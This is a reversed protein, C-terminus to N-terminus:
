PFVIVGANETNWTQKGTARWRCIPTDEGRCVAANFGLAAGAPLRGGLATWPILWECSWAQPASGAAFKVGQAALHRRLESIGSDPRSELRGDRYGRLLLAHADDRPKIALEGYVNDGAAKPLPIEMAVLLADPTALLRLKAPFPDKSGDPRYAILTQGASATPQWEEPTVQGDITITASPADPLVLRGLPAPIPRKAFPQLAPSQQRQELSHALLQRADPLHQRFATQRLGIRRFPIVEFHPIRQRVAALNTLTYDGQAADHFGPDNQEDMFWNFKEALFQRLHEKMSLGTGGIVINRKFTNHLPLEPQDDMIRALHPYAFTWPPRQYDVAQLKALLNWSDGAPAQWRIREKGRADLHLAPQCRIFINNEVLNDRGGGIFVARRVDSFVNGYIADGSDCDDLYVGMSWNAFGGNHHIYNHRVVNGQSGWNRGTYLAGADGTELCTSFIDNFEILQENGSYFIATHPLDHILNHRAVNGVGGLHIAGQYTRKLQGIRRIHCNDVVNNARRLKRRDGGNVMIGSGGIDSIDCDRVINNVGTVTIANGAINRLQCGSITNRKGGVVLANGHAHEFALHQLHINDTGQLHFFPKDLTAYALINGDTEPPLWAYLLTSGPELCWQGPRHIGELTNLARFRRPHRNWATSPGVGYASVTSDLTVTGEELNVDAIRITEDFWDHCWYGHLWVGGPAHKWASLPAEAALRVVAMRGPKGKKAAEGRDIVHELTAWGAPPWCAIDLATGQHYLERWPAPGRFVAAPRTVPPLGLSQLDLVRVHPRAAPPLRRLCAPDTVAQFNARPLLTAGSFITSGDAAGAIVLKGATPTDHQTLTITETVHYRGPALQITFRESPLVGTQNAARYQRLARDLTKFPALESGPNSDSGSLPHVYYTVATRNLEDGLLPLALWLLLLLTFRNRM